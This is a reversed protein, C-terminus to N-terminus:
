EYSFPSLYAFIQMRNSGNKVLFYNVNKTTDSKKKLLIPKEGRFVLGKRWVAGSQEKCVPIFQAGHFCLVKWVSGSLNQVKFFGVNKLFGWFKWMELYKWSNIERTFHERIDNMVEYVQKPIQYWTLTDIDSYVHLYVDFSSMGKLGWFLWVALKM